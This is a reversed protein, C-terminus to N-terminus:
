WRSYSEDNWDSSISTGQNINENQDIQKDYEDELGFSGNYFPDNGYNDKNIININSKDKRGIIRFSANITPSPDKIDREILTNDYSINPSTEKYENIDEYRTEDKYKLTENASTKNIKSLSTTVIYSLIFGTGTSIALYSGLSITPTNWILLRLKTYEKQNSISLITILLITSFLPTLRILYNVKM